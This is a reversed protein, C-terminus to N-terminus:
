MVSVYERPLSTKSSPAKTPSFPHPLNTLHAGRLTQVSWKALLYQSFMVSSFPVVDHCICLPFCSCLVDDAIEFFKAFESCICITRVAHRPRRRPVLRLRPELLLHFSFTRFDADIGRVADPRLDRALRLLGCLELVVVANGEDIGQLAIMEVHVIERFCTVFEERLVDLLIQFEMDLLRGHELALLLGDGADIANRAAFTLVDREVPLACMGARRDRHTM